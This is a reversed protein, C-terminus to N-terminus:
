GRVFEKIARACFDPAEETVFHDAGPVALVRIDPRLARTKELAGESVVNSEAGHVVLVPCSLAKFAPAFDERLGETAQVMAQTNALPRLGGDAPGFLTNARRRIAEDPLKLLRARVETEIEAKSAYLRDSARVRVELTDLVESEVFPVFDIAVVAKVKGPDLAAAVIANRAGLSHGILVAPGVDLTEILALVDRVFDEARYGSAPKDSLGHGRQDIAVCAFEAALEQTIPDWVAANSMMGHLFIALRGKGTERVNLAIRKLDIRRTRIEEPM